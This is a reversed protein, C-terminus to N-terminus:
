LAGAESAFGSQVTPVRPLSARCRQRLKEAELFSLMLYFYTEKAYYTVCAYDEVLTMILLTACVATELSGYRRYRIFVWFLYFYISYYLLFGVLGGGALIEAFNNHLYFTKSLYKWAVARGSGMGVGLIPTKRFQLMGVDILALRTTASRDTKGVGTVASAMSVMRKYIGSFAPLRSILILMGAAALLGVALLLMIEGPSRGRIVALFLLLILGGAMIALAQRSGTASLILIGPILFLNVWRIRRDRLITYVNVVMSMACLVGVTNSNLFFQESLRDGYELLSLVGHVGYTGLIVLMVANGAWLVANLLADVSDFEQYCLYALSYCILLSFVSKGKTLANQTDWAWVASLLCFLGFTFMWVHFFTVRLRLRGGRETMMSCATLVFLLLIAASSYARDFLIFFSSFLLIALLRPIIHRKENLSLAM